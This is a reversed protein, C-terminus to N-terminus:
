CLRKVYTALEHVVVGDNVKTEAQVISAPVGISASRVNEPMVGVRKLISEKCLVPIPGSANAYKEFLPLKM